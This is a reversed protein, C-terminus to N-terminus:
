LRDSVPVPLAGAPVMFLKGVARTQLSRAHPPDRVWTTEPRPKSPQALLRSFHQVVPTVSAGVVDPHDHVVWVKHIKQQIDWRGYWGKPLVVVDGPGFPYRTGDPDSV